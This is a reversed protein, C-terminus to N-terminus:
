QGRVPKLYESLIYGYEGQYVCYLFGNEEGEEPFALVMAGLPVKALRRSSASRKERLSVFSSCRVVQMNPGQERKLAADNSGLIEEFPAVGSCSVPPNLILYTMKTDNEVWSETYAEYECEVRYDSGAHLPNDTSTFLLTVRCGYDPIPRVSWTGRSTYAPQEDTGPFFLSMDGNEELTILVDTEEEETEMVWEGPIQKLMETDIFGQFTVSDLVRQLFKANGEASEMSYEGVARFYQGNEAILVLFYWTGNELERYVDMQVRSAYSQEVIDIDLDEAYEVADEEPIMSLVMHDDSFLGGVLIGEINDAEGEYAELRDAPYWFSFGLDSEFLTEEISEEMGELAIVGQRTEAAASTFLMLICLMGSLWATMKKRKM